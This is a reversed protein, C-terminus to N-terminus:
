AHHRLERALTARGAPLAVSLLTEPHDDAWLITLRAEQANPSDVVVREILIRMLEKRDHITTTDADWLERLNAALDQLEIFEEETFSSGLNSTSPAASDLAALDQKAQELRKEVLKVVHLHAPDLSFFRAELDEVM